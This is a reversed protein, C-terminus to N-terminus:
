LRPCKFSSVFDDGLREIAIVRLFHVHGGFAERDSEPIEGAILNAGCHPCETSNVNLKM